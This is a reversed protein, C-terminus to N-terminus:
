PQHTLLPTIAINGNRNVVIYSIDTKRDTIVAVYDMAYTKMPPSVSVVFRNDIGPMAAVEVEPQRQENPGCGSLLGALLIMSVIYTLTLKFKM